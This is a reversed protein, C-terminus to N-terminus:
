AVFFWNEYINWDENITHFTPQAGEAKLEELKRDAEEQNQTRLEIMYGEDRKVFIDITKEKM